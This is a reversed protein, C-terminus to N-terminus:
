VPAGRPFTPCARFLRFCLKPRKVIREAVGAREEVPRVIRRQGFGADQLDGRQTRAAADLEAYELCQLGVQLPSITKSSRIRITSRM